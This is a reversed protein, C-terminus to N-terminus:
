RLQDLVALEEDIEEPPYDVAPIDAASLLDIFEDITSCALEAGQGLTVAGVEFLRIAISREISEETPAQSFPVVIAAPRDDQTIVSFRGAAADRLLDRTRTGLDKAEFIDMTRM